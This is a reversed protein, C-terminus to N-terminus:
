HIQRVIKVELGGESGVQWQVCKVSFDNVM